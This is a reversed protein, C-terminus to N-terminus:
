TPDLCRFLRCRFSMPLTELYLCIYLHKSSAVILWGFWKRLIDSRQRASKAKWDPWAKNAAEIAKKTELTGCKPVTGIEELSAPNNVSITDGTNADVWEGNIYNKNRFLKFDQINM